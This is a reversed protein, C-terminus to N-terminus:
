IMGYAHDYGRLSFSRLIDMLEDLLSSSNPLYVISWILFLSFLTRWSL